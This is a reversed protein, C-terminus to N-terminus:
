IGCDLKSERKREDEERVRERRTKRSDGTHNWYDWL